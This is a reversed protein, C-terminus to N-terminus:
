LREVAFNIRFRALGGEVEDSSGFICIETVL